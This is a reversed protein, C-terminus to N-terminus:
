RGGGRQQDRCVINGPRPDPEDGPDSEFFGTRKLHHSVRRKVEDVRIAHLRERCSTYADFAILAVVDVRKDFAQLETAFSPDVLENKLVERVVDKLFFVFSIAESASMDQVSRIKIIELLHPQTESVDKNEVLIDVIFRTGETHTYGVPNAFQDKQKSFFNVSDTPYTRLTRDLWEAAITTRQVKLCDALTM